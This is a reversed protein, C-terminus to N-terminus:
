TVALISGDVGNGIFREAHLQQTEANGTAGLHAAMAFQWETGDNQFETDLFDGQTAIDSPLYRDADLGSVGM